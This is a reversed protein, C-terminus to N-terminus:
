RITKETIVRPVERNAIRSSVHTQGCASAPSIVGNASTSIQCADSSVDEVQALTTESAGEPVGSGLLTKAACCSSKLQDGPNRAPTLMAGSVEFQSQVSASVFKEV